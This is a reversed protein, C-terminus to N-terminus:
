VNKNEPFAPRGGKELFKQNCNAHTPSAKMFDAKDAADAKAANSM